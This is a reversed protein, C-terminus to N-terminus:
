TKPQCKNDLSLNGLNTNPLLNILIKVLFSFHSLEDGMFDGFNTMLKLVNEEPFCRIKM